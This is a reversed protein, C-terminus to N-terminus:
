RGSSVSGGRSRRGPPPSPRPWAEPGNRERRRCRRSDSRACGRRRAPRLGIDALLTSSSATSTIRAATAPRGSWGGRGNSCPRSRAGTCGAPRAKRRDDDGGRSRLRGFKAPASRRRTRRGRGRGRPSRATRASGTSASAGTRAPARTNPRPPPSAFDVASSHHGFATTPPCGSSPAPAATATRPHSRSPGALVVNGLADDASGIGFEVNLGDALEDVRAVVM